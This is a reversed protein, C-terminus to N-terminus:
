QHRKKALYAGCSSRKIQLLTTKEYSRLDTWTALTSDTQLSAVNSQGVVGSRGSLKCQDKTDQPKEELDWPKIGQVSRIRSPFNHLEFNSEKICMLRASSVQVVRVTQILYSLFRKSSSELSDLPLDKKWWMKKRRCWAGQFGKPFLGNELMENRRIEGRRKWALYREEGSTSLPSFQQLDVRDPSKSQNGKLHKERAKKRYVFCSERGKQIIRNETIPSGKQEWENSCTLWAM